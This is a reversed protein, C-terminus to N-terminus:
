KNRRLFKYKMFHYSKCSLYFLASKFRDVGLEKLAIFFINDALIFDDYNKDNKYAKDCLFDHVVVASLYEPSNPPYISWFVRPINAGNTKYGTPIDVVGFGCEYSYNEILEFKDKDFPKLVVRTM